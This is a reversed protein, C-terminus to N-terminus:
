LRRGGRQLEEVRRTQQEIFASVVRAPEADKAFAVPQEENQGAVAAAIEGGLQAAEAFLDEEGVQFDDGITDAPEFVLHLLWFRALFTFGILLFQSEKLADHRRELLAFRRGR